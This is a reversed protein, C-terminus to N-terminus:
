YIITKGSDLLPLCAATLLKASIRKLRSMRFYLVFKQKETHGQLVKFYMYLVPVHVCVQDM